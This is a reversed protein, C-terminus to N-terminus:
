GNYATFRGTWFFHEEQRASFSIKRQIKASGALSIRQRFFISNWTLTLYKPSNDPRVMRVHM